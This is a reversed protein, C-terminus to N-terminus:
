QRAQQEVSAAAYFEATKQQESATGLADEVYKSAALCAEGVFGKTQVTIEGKPSITVEIVQM